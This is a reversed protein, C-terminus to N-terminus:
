ARALKQNWGSIVRDLDFTGGHLYWDRATVIEISHDALYRDIDPVTRKLAQRADEERLPEAVVWLCFEHNELGAKCYTVLTDLLDETTEYFLCFHSGWPLHGVIDVGTNRMASAM